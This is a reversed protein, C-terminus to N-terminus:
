KIVVVDGIDDHTFGLSDSRRELVDGVVLGLGGGCFGGFTHARGMM